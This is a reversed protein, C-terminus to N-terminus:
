SKLSYTSTAQPRSWAPGPHQPRQLSSSSSTIFTFMNVGLCTVVYQEGYVRAKVGGFWREVRSTWEWLRNWVDRTLLRALRPAAVAAAQRRDPPDDQPDSRLPEGAGHRARRAGHGELPRGAPRPQHEGDRGGDQRRHAQRRARIQLASVSPLHRRPPPPSWQKSLPSPRRAARPPRRSRALPEESKDDPDFCRIEPRVIESLSTTWASLTLYLCSVQPSLQGLHITITHTASPRCTCM